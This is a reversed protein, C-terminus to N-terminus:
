EETHIRKIFGKAVLVMLLIPIDDGEKEITIKGNKHFHGARRLRIWIQNFKRKRIKEPKTLTFIKDKDKWGYVLLGAIISAEENYEKNENLGKKIKKFLKLDKDEEM